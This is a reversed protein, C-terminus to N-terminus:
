SLFDLVMRPVPGCGPGSLGNTIIARIAMLHIKTSSSYLDLCLVLLGVSSALPVDKGNGFIFIKTATDYDTFNIWSATVALQFSERLSFIEYKTHM